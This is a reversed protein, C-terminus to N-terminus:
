GRAATSRVQHSPRGTDHARHRAALRGTAPHLPHSTAMDDVARRADLQTRHREAGIHVSDTLGTPRITSASFLADTYTVPNAGNCAYFIAGALLPLLVGVLVHLRFYSTDLYARWGTSMWLPGPPHLLRAREDLERRAPSTASGAVARARGVSSAPLPRVVRMM